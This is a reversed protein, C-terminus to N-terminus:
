VLLSVLADFFKGRDQAYVLVAPSFFFDARLMCRTMTSAQQFARGFFNKPSEGSLPPTGVVLTYSPDEAYEATLVLPLSAFRRSKASVTYARLACNALQFLCSPRGFLRSHQTGEQITGYLFPGACIINGLDMFSNVLQSIAVMQEKAQEIGKRLTNTNSWSLADLASFFNESPQEVPSELLAVLGYAADSAFFHDRYGCKGSFCAFLLNSLGYKEAMDCMWEKVHSRLNIDMSAFQQKCQFLPLGLEALFEHLRRLGKQNWLKFACLIHPTNRLSEM